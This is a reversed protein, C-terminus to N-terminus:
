GTPAEAEMPTGPEPASATEGRSLGLQAAVANVSASAQDVYMAASVAVSAQEHIQELMGLTVKQVAAIAHDLEASQAKARSAAEWIGELARRIEETAGGTQKALEKVSSAVVKFGRGAEGARAAELTANLSLSRTQAAILEILELVGEVRRILGVLGSMETSLAGASHHVREVEREFGGLEGTVRGLSDSVGTMMGSVMQVSVGVQEARRQLDEFLTALQPPLAEGMRDIL